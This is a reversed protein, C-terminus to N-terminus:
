AARQKARRGARQALWYLLPRDRKSANCAACCATLNDLAHSGGRALPEIHDIQATAVSIPQACYPCAPLDALLAELDSQSLTGGAQAALRANRNRNWKARKEPNAHRWAVKQMRRRVDRDMGERRARMLADWRADFDWGWRKALMVLMTEKVGTVAELAPWSEGGEFMPRVRARWPYQRAERALARIERDWGERLRYVNISAVSIGLAQAIEYVVDGAEYRNKATEVWEPRFSRYLYARNGSTM